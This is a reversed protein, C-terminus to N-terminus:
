GFVVLLRAGFANKLEGIPTDVGYLSASPVAVKGNDVFRHFAGLSCM